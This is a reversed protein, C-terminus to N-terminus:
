KQMKGKKRTVMGSDAVMNSQKRTNRSPDGSNGVNDTAREDGSNGVDRVEFLPPSKKNVSDDDEEEDLEDKRGGGM